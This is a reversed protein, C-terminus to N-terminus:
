FLFFFFFEQDALAAVAHPVNPRVEKRWVGDEGQGNFSAFSDSWTWRIGRFTADGHSLRQCGSLHCNGGRRARTVIIIKRRNGPEQVEKPVMSLLSARVM